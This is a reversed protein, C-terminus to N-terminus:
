SPMNAISENILYAYDDPSVVEYPLVFLGNVAERSFSNFQKTINVGLDILLTGYYSEGRISWLSEIPLGTNPDICVYLILEKISDVAGEDLIGVLSGKFDDISVNTYLADCNIGNVKKSGLYDIDSYDALLEQKINFFAIDNDEVCVPKSFANTCSYNGGDIILQESSFSNSSFPPVTDVRVYCYGDDVVATINSNYRVVSGMVGMDMIISSSFSYTDLNGLKNVANNIISEPTKTNISFVLIFAVVIILPTLLM